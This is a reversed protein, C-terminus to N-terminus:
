GGLLWGMGVLRRVGQFRGLGRNSVSMEKVLLEEVFDVFAM